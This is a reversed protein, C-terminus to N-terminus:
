KIEKNELMKITKLDDDKKIHYIHHIETPANQQTKDDETLVSFIYLLVTIIIFTVGIFFMRNNKTLISWSFRQELLDDLIGFWSNKIGVLIEYINLQYIEKEKPEASLLNIRDNEMKKIRKKEQDAYADFKKNFLVSDFKKDQNDTM